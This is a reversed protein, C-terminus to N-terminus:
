RRCPDGPIAQLRCVEVLGRGPCMRLQLWAKPVTLGLRSGRTPHWQRFREPAVGVRSSSMGASQGALTFQARTSRFVPM